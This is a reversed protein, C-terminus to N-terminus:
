PAQQQIKTPLKSARSKSREALKKEAEYLVRAVVLHTELGLPHIALLQDFVNATSRAFHGHPFAGVVLMSRERVLLRGAVEAPSSPKGLTSLGIVLDPAFARVVSQVDGGRVRVLSSAEDGQMSTALLQRILGDFRVSTRPLRVGPTFELVRHQWTHLYVEVENMRFLPADTAALLAFHVLDPRGRKAAEPLGRMASHHFSRDLLLQSPHLGLRSAHKAVAPHSWILQPVLELAAEALLLAFM